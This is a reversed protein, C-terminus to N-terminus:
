RPGWLIQCRDGTTFYDELIGDRSGLTLDCHFQNERKEFYATKGM